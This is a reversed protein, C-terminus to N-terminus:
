RYLDGGFYHSDRPAEPMIKRIEEKTMGLKIPGVSEYPKIVFEM